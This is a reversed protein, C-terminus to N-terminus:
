MQIGLFEWAKDKPSGKGRFRTFTEGTEADKLQGKSVRCLTTYKQGEDHDDFLNYRGKKAVLRDYSKLLTETGDANVRWLESSTLSDGSQSFEFYRTFDSDSTYFEDNLDNMALGFTIDPKDPSYEVLDQSEKADNYRNLEPSIKLHGNKMLVIKNYRDWYDHIIFTNANLRHYYLNRGESYHGKQGAKSVKVDHETIELTFFEDPSFTGTVLNSRYYTGKLENPMGKTFTAFSTPADFHAKSEGIAKHACGVTLLGFITIIFLKILTYASTM